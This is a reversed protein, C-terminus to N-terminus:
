KKLRKAIEKNIRAQIELLDDDKWQKFDTKVLPAITNRYFTKNFVDLFPNQTPACYEVPEVCGEAELEDKLISILAQLYHARERTASSDWWYIGGGWLPSETFQHFKNYASPKNKEMYRLAMGKIKDDYPANRIANCIHRRKEPDCQSALIERVAHRYVEIIGKKEKRSLMLETGKM